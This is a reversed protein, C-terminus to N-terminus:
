DGWEAATEKTMQLAAPTMELIQVVQTDIARVKKRAQTYQSWYFKEDQLAEDPDILGSTSAKAIKSVSHADVWAALYLGVDFADYGATMKQENQSQVGEVCKFRGQIDFPSSRNSGAGCQDEYADSGRKIETRTTPHSQIPADLPDAGAHGALLAAAAAIIAVKM